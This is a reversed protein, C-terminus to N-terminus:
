ELFIIFVFSSPTLHPSNFCSKRSEGWARVHCCLSLSCLRSLSPHSIGVFAQFICSPSIISGVPPPQGSPRCHLEVAWCESASHEKSPPTSPFLQFFPSTSLKFCCCNAGEGRGHGGKGSCSVLTWKRSWILWLLDPSLWCSCSSTSLLVFCQLVGNNIFNAALAMLSRAAKEQRTRPPCDALCVGGLPDPLGERSFSFPGLLSRRINNTNPTLPLNAMHCLQCGVWDGQLHQDGFGGTLWHGWGLAGTDWQLVSVSWKSDCCCKWFTDMGHVCVSQLFCNQSFLSM